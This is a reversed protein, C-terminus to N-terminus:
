QIPFSVTAGFVWPREDAFSLNELGRTFDLGKVGALLDLKLGKEFDVARWSLLTGVYWNDQTKFDSVVVGKLSLRPGAAFLRTSIGAMGDFGDHLYTVGLSGESYELAYSQGSVGGDDGFAIPSNRLTAGGGAFAASILSLTLALAFIIRKM